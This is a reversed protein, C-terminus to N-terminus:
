AAVQACDGCTDVCGFGGCANVPELRALEDYVYQDAAVEADHYSRFFGILEDDVYCAFDRTQRDYQIRKNM